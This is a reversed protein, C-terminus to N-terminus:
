SLLKCAQKKSGYKEVLTQFVYRCAAGGAFGAAAGFPGSVLAGGFGAAAAVGICALYSSFICAWKLAARNIERKVKKPILKGDKDATETMALSLKGNSELSYLNFSTNGNSHAEQKSVFEVNNESNVYLNYYVDDSAGKVNVIGTTRGNEAIEYKSVINDKSLSLETLTDSLNNVKNVDSMMTIEANNNDEEAAFARLSSSITTFFLVVALISLILKNQKLTM